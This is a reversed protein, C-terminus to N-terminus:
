AIKSYEFLIQGLTADKNINEVAMYRGTPYQESFKSFTSQYKKTLQQIEEASLEQKRELIIAEPAYLLVNLLPKKIFKYLFSIFGESLNINSRRSDNIFDFYYRDYVVIYGRSIYKFYVYWQGLLYDIYYYSFRFLSSIISNNNGKRPLTEAAIKEAAEKGHIFSSLIPLLSPRHRLIKVKKRFMVELNEKLENIITSKGAGDVGSFTIIAGKQFLMRKATDKVYILKNVFRFLVSNSKQSKLYRIIDGRLRQNPNYIEEFKTLGLDLKENFYDIYEFENFKNFFERYKIPWSANNLQYFYLLYEADDKERPIKIGEDNPESHDLVEQMDMYVLDKRKFEHILDLHLFSGDIFYIDVSSMFSQQLTNITRIKSHKKLYLIVEKIDKASMAIDLDSALPWNQTGGYINRMLAYKKDGLFTIFEEIFEKRLVNRNIQLMEEDILYTWTKVLWQVQTHLRSQKQFINLYHTFNTILYLRYNLRVDTNYKSSLRLTESRKMWSDIKQKIVHPPTHNILVEKQILYHFADFFLPTQDQSLEWDYLHVHEKSLYMNWPTFDGHGLGVTIQLHSNIKKTLNELTELCYKDFKFDPVTNLYSLQKLLKEWIPLKAITSHSVTNQIIEDIALDHLITWDNQNDVKKPKVSGYAVNESDIFKHIDPTKVYHLKIKKIKCLQSYENQLSLSADNTMPIKIFHTTHGKNSVELQMKRLPGVTGTFISYQDHKLTNLMQDVVNDGSQYLSFGGQFLKKQLGLKFLFHTAAKYIKSKLGLSNYFNLYSPTKIGRPFVWRLTGDPNCIYNFEHQIKNLGEMVLNSHIDLYYDYKISPIFSDTDTYIFVSKYGSEINNTIQSEMEDKRITIQLNSGLFLTCLLKWDENTINKM